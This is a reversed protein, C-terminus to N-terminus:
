CVWSDDIAVPLYVGGETFERIVTDLAAADESDTASKAIKRMRAVKRLRLQYGEV